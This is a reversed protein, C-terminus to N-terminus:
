KVFRMAISRDKAREADSASAPVTAYEDGYGETVIRDAKIGNDSMLKKIYEARQKSIEMNVAETGPQDAYGGIKIKTDPYAKLISILTNLYERSGPLLENASNFVFDIGEFHYWKSSLDKASAKKYGDNKLFDTIKQFEGNKYVKVVTGDPLTIETMEVNNTNTTTTAAPQAPRAPQVQETRVRDANRMDRKGCSRFMWWCLLALLIIILLWWLWSMGKKKKPQSKQPDTDYVGMVSSLGLAHYISPPIDKKLTAKEAKLESMITALSTKNDVVREGLYAAITSSIWNSLRDANEAKIGSKRAVEVPFDRNTSGVLANEMREGYNVGDIIGSGTYIDDLHNKVKAKGAHQVVEAVRENKEEKLLAGLLSPLIISAADAVKSKDEGLTAAASAIRKQTVMGKITDYVQAM